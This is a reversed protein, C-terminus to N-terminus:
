KRVAKVVEELYEACFQDVTKNEAKAMAELKEYNNPDIRIKKTKSM